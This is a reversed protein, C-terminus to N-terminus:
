DILDIEERTNGERVIPIQDLSMLDFPINDLHVVVDNYLFNNEKLDNLALKMIEPRVPQFLVHRHYSLKRKLKLFILANSDAVRPLINCMSDAEVPANCVAGKTNSFQGKPM